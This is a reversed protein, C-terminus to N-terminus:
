VANGLIRVRKAALNEPLNKKGWAKLDASRTRELCGKFDFNRASELTSLKTHLPLITVFSTVGYMRNDSKREKFYGFSSEIIDSSVNHVDDDSKLLSTEARFYGIMMEAIRTPRAGRGMLSRNVIAICEKSTKYSLGKTKCISLVKEYCEAVEELEEVLSGHEWVFSYMKREKPTLKYSADMMNGVWHIWGFVNMYRALTRMNCPMLYDVDTLAYHRANGIAKTLSIYQEDKDYVAKLFTGFTHSIDRHGDLGADRLGKTLSTGNDTVAYEPAHGVTETIRGVADVIDSSNHSPAVHILAVEVDSHALPKGPHRASTKLGLLIKHEAITISEDMVIAYSKDVPIDKCRHAYTDVGAKLVWDRVTVYSPIDLGLFPFVFNFVEMSKEVARLSNGSYIYLLLAV